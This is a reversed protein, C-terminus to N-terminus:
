YGAIGNEDLWYVGHQIMYWLLQSWVAWESQPLERGNVFVGTNPNSANRDIKGFVHGIRMFSFAPYGVVGYLGSGV